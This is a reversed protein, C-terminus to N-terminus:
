ELNLKKKLILWTAVFLAAFLAAQSAIYIALQPIIDVSTVLEIADSEFFGSILSVFIIYIVVFALLGFLRRHKAFPPLQAVSLSTYIAMFFLSLEILSLVATEALVVVDQWTLNEFLRPLEQFLLPFQSLMEGDVFLMVGSLLGIIPGVVFWCLSVIVKAWVLRGTTTPLTFMLYGEDGLLNSQFRQVVILLTVVFAAVCLAGFTFAAVMSAMTAGSHLLLNTIIAVLLLATYIPLLIRGTAQFEYKLLKGLM